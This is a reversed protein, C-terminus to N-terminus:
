NKKKSWELFEKFLKARDEEAVPQNKGLSSRKSMFTNFDNKLATTQEEGKRHRELWEQAAPFRNWGPLEAALNVEKWKAHRPAKQFEAFKTFLAEVVKSTRRFRDHERPWNYVALVSGVAITDIKQGEALLGPYDAATLNAPLYDQQLAKEFAVPLLQLDPDKALKAFVAAPRGAVFVTAAVEGSKIKVLADPQSMNVEEVKLGLLDFIMRASFQTGSGNEAFNVKKGALDKFSKINKHAVVHLEENYLKTIYVLRRDINPGLENNSRFHRMVDSQVIGMDVGRLHLIDKVNQVSGKGLMALVRLQDGEDLVVSIDYAIQIYTGAPTGTIISVTNENMRAKMADQTTPRVAPARQQQQQTQTRQSQALTQAYSASGFVSVATGALALFWAARM